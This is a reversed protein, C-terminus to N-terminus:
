KKSRDTNRILVHGVVYGSLSLLDEADFKGKSSDDRVSDIGRGTAASVDNLTFKFIRKNAM